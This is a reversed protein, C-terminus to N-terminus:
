TERRQAAYVQAHQQWADSTLPEPVVLGFSKLECSPQCCLCPLARLYDEADTDWPVQVVYCHHSVPHQRCFHAKVQQWRHRLANM